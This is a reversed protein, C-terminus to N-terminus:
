GIIKQLEDEGGIIFIKNKKMVDRFFAGEKNKRLTEYNWLVPNVERGIENEAGDLLKFLETQSIDGIIFLDIDSEAGQKNNAFSGFIFALKIMRNNLKNKIPYYAYDTRVLIEMLPKLINSEKNLIIRGNKKIIVGLALLNDVERKVAHTSIELNKSIERIYTENKEFLVFRLVKIRNKSTFLKELM